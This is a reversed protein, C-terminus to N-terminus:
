SALPMALLGLSCEVLELFRGASRLQDDAARETVVGRAGAEIAARDSAAGAFYVSWAGFHPAQADLLVWVSTLRRRSVGPRGTQALVAAAARLAAVHALCFREEVSDAAAAEALAGHARDLLVHAGRPLDPRAEDAPLAARDSIM